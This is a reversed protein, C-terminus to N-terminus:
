YVHWHRRFLNKGCQYKKHYEQIAVEIKQNSERIMSDIAIPNAPLGKIIEKVDDFSIPYPLYVPFYNKGFQNSCRKELALPLIDIDTITSMISQFEGAAVDSKSVLMNSLVKRIYANKDNIFLIIRANSDGIINFEPKHLYDYFNILSLLGSNEFYGGDVYHGKQPVEAAPSFIPFREVTSTAGLYTISKGDEYSLIDDAGPQILNINKDRISFSVGYRHHTGTTNGILLPMFRNGSRKFGSEWYERFTSSLMSDRIAKDPQILSAYEETSRIARDGPLWTAYPIQEFIFDQGFLYAVDISLINHKGIAALREQRKTDDPCETLLAEYMSLGLFGGSVGSM